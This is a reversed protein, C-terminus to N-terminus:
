GEGLDRNFREGRWAEQEAEDDPTMANLSRSLRRLGPDEAAHTMAARIVDQIPLGRLNVSSTRGASQDRYFSLALDYASAEIAHAQNFKPAVNM